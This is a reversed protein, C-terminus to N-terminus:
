IKSPNENRVEADLVTSPVDYISPSHIFSNWYIVFNSAKKKKRNLVHTYENKDTNWIAGVCVRAM